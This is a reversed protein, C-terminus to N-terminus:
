RSAEGNESPGFEPAPEDRMAAVRRQVSRSQTPEVAPRGIASRLCDELETLTYRRVGPQAQDPEPLEELQLMFERVIEETHDNTEVPTPNWRGNWTKWADQESAFGTLECSCSHCEIVWEGSTPHGRYHARIDRGGCFPCSLKQKSTM